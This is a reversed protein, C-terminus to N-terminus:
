VDAAAVTAFPNVSLALYAFYKTQEGGGGGDQEQMGWNIVSFAPIAPFHPDAAVGVPLMKHVQNNDCIVYANINIFSSESQVRSAQVTEQM